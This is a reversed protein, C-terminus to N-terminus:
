CISSQFPECGALCKVLVIVGLVRGSVRLMSCGLCLPRSAFLRRLNSLLGSICFFLHDSGADVGILSIDLLWRQFKGELVGSPATRQIGPCTRMREWVDRKSGIYVVHVKLFIHLRAPQTQTRLRQKSKWRARTDQSSRPNNEANIRVQM